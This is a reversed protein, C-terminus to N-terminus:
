YGLKQDSTFYEMLETYGGIYRDDLFIQPVTKAQPLLKLLDERTYGHTGIKKINIQYGRKELEEIALRCFPCSDKSWVTAQTVPISSEM